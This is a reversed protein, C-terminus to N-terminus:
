DTLLKTLAVYDKPDAPILQEANLETLILYAEDSNTIENLANIVSSKIDSNVTPSVLFIQGPFPESEKLVMLNPYLRYLYEPIIAAEAEGSFVQNIVDKWSLATVVKQPQIFLDTFWQDYLLSGINPSPFTIVRKGVLQKNIDENAVLNQNTVLYYRQDAAVRLIPEYNKETIRYAAVHPADLTFDPNDLQADRWYFYYNDSSNIQVNYGTKKALWDALPQYVFEAQQPPYIAEVTLDITQSLGQFSCLILILTMISQKTKSM